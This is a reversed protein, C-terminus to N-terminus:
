PQGERLLKRTEARLEGLRQNIRAAKALQEPTLVNRIELTVQASERSLESRLQDIQQLLPALDGSTVPDPSYLKATLAEQAARLQSFITRFQPRHNAAIQRVQAQQAETLGVGRIVIGLMPPGGFGERDGTGGPQASATTAALLILLCGVLARGWFYKTRM